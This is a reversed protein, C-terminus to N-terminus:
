CFAQGGGCSAYFYFRIAFVLIALVLMAVGRDGRDLTMLIIGIIFPIIALVPFIFALALFVWGAREMGRTDRVPGSTAAGAQVSAGCNPCFRQQASLASGCNPCFRAM